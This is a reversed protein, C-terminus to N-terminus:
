RGDAYSGDVAEAGDWGVGSSGRFGRFGRLGEGCGSQAEGRGVERQNDDEANAIWMPPPLPVWVCPPTRPDTSETPETAM